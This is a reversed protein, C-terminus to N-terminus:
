AMCSDNLISILAQETVSSPQNRIAAFSDFYYGSEFVVTAGM